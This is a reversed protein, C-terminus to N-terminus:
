IIEACAISAEGEGACTRRVNEVTPGLDGRAVLSIWQANWWIMKEVKRWLQGVIGRYKVLGTGELIILKPQSLLDANSILTQMLSPRKQSICAIITCSLITAPIDLGMAAFEALTEELKTVYSNIGEHYQIDEWKRWVHYIALVSSSAYEGKLEKWIAFADKENKDTIVHNYIHDEIHQGLIAAARIYQLKVEESM